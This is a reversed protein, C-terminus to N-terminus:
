QVTTGWGEQGRELVVKKEGFTRGVSVVKREHIGEDHVDTHGRDSLRLGPTAAREEYGTVWTYNCQLVKSGIKVDFTLMVKQAGHYQVQAVGIRVRM